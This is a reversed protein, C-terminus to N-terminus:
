LTNSAPLCRLVKQPTESGRRVPILSATISSTAIYFKFVISSYLFSTPISHADEQTDQLVPSPASIRTSPTSPLYSVALSITSIGM